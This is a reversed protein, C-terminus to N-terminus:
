SKCQVLIAPRDSRMLVHGPLLFALCVQRLGEACALGAAGGGIIVVGKGERQKKVNIPQRGFQKLEDVSATVYIDDGEITVKYSPLSDLAPADEIDGTTAKFCAGHWQTARLKCRECAHCNSM